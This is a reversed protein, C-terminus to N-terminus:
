IVKLRTSVSFFNVLILAETRFTPRLPLAPGDCAGPTCPCGVPLATPRWAGDRIWLFAVMLIAAAPAKSMPVVSDRCPMM